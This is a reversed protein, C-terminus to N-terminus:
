YLIYKGTCVIDIVKDLKTLHLPALNCLIKIVQLIVKVGSSLHFKECPQDYFYKYVIFSACDFDSLFIETIILVTFFLWTDYVPFSFFNFTNYIKNIFQTVIKAATVVVM